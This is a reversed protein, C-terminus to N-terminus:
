FIVTSYRKAAALDLPLPGVAGCCLPRNNIKV